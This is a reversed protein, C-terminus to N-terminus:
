GCNSSCILKLTIWRLEILRVTTDKFVFSRFMRTGKLCFVLFNKKRIGDKTKDESIQRLWELIVDECLRVIRGRWMESSLQLGPWPFDKLRFFCALWVSVSPLLCVPGSTSSKLSCCFSLRIFSSHVSAGRIAKFWLVVRCRPQHTSVLEALVSPRQPSGRTM